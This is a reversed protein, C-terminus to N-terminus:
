KVLKNVVCRHEDHSGRSKELFSNLTNCQDKFLKITEEYASIATRNSQIEQFMSALQAVKQEKLNSNKDFPKIKVGHLHRRVVFQLLVGDREGSQRSIM